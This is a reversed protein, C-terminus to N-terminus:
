SRISHLAGHWSDRIPIQWSTSLEGKTQILNNFVITDVSFEKEIQKEFDKKSILKIEEGYRIAFINRDLLSVSFDKEIKQIFHFAKDISCGSADAHKNDVMLILFIGFRIEFSAKLDKNHATWGSVFEKALTSIKNEEESTFKRNAQYIWVRSDAPIENPLVFM